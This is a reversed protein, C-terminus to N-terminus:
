RWTWIDLSTCLSRSFQLDPRAFAWTDVVQQGHTNIVKVCQGKDLLAAKGKRAPITILSQTAM